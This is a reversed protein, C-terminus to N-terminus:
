GKLGADLLKKLNMTDLVNGTIKIQRKMFAAMADLQGTIIKELVEATGTITAIPSPHKGKEVKIEGNSIDIYFEEGTDEVVFQYVKKWSTVEPLTSKAKEFIGKFAEAAKEYIAM